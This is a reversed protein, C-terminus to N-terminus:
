AVEGAEIAQGEEILQEGICSSSCYQEGDFIYGEGKYIAEECHKYHCKGVPSQIEDEGYTSNLIPNEVSM